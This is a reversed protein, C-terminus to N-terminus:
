NREKEKLWEFFKFTDEQIVVIDEPPIGMGILCDITSELFTEHNKEDLHRGVTVNLMFLKAAWYLHPPLTSRLHEDWPPPEDM